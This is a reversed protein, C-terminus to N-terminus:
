FITDVLLGAESQLKRLLAPLEAAGIEQDRVARCVRQDTCDYVELLFGEEAALLVLHIPIKHRELDANVHEILRRLGKEEFAYLFDSRRRKGGEQERRGGEYHRVRIVPRVVDVPPMQEADGPEPRITSVPGKIEYIPM